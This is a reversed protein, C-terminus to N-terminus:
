FFIVTKLPENHKIIEISLHPAFDIQPKNSSEEM